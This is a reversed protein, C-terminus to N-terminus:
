APIVGPLQCAAIGAILSEVAKPRSYSKRWLVGVVREPAPKKFPIYRLLRHEVGKVALASAPLVTIGVGSAVMHRITELSTGELTQALGAGKPTRCFDLVQDRFCHGAGLLLLSEQYVECSAVSKRGAWPHDAPVAVFFPERYVARAVLGPEMVPLAVVIADLEGERLLPVLQETFNEQILLPMQPARKHMVPILQPLLYPAVTYIAGMRLPGKLPDGGQKAMEKLTAVEELVHRAQAVIREGEPTTSVDNAGREFLTLGLEDELKKIAVSLTPQSVFCREAARGFHRERAVAVVYRLETLTM